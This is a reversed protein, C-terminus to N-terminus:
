EEVLAYGCKLCTGDGEDIPHACRCVGGCEQILASRAAAEAREAPSKRLWEERAALLQGLSPYVTRGRWERGYIKVTETLAADAWFQCTGDRFALLVRRGDRTQALRYYERGKYRVRAYVTAGRDPTNTTTATAM